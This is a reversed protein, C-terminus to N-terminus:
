LHLNSWFTTFESNYNVDLDKFDQAANIGCFNQNDKWLEFLRLCPHRLFGFLSFSRLSHSEEM